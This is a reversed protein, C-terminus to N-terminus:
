QNKPYYYHKKSFKMCCKKIWQKFDTMKLNKLPNGNINPFASHQRGAIFDYLKLDEFQKVLILVDGETNKSTHKGSPHHVKSIANYNRVIRDTTDLSRSVRDIIRQTIVGRHSTVDNKFSKNDHEIDLDMPHNTDIQGQYNVSRNWTLQYAKRESLLCMTQCLLELTAYAYKPCGSVKYFLLFYKYLRVIRAGDGMHIANDHNRRLLCLMLTTHTYNFVKDQTFHVTGTSTSYPQIDEAFQIHFQEHQKLSVPQVFEQECYKCKLSQQEQTLEPVKTMVYNDVFTRAESLIYQKVDSKSDPNDEFKNRTPSSNVDKLGFHHLAGSVLYADTFKNLLEASAYFDKSPTSSVNHAKLANRAAYLTGIDRSSSTSYLHKWIVKQWEAQVHFDEIKPILGELRKSPTRGDVKSSQAEKHREFTLYDGGSLVKVPQTEKDPLQDEHFPVYQYLHKVIDIMDDVYQENKGLIGM